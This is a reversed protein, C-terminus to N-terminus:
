GGAADMVPAWVEKTDPYGHIMVVTPRTAEGAEAVALSVEGSRVTGKRPQRCGTDTRAM